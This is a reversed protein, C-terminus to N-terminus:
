KQNDLSKKRNYEKKIWYEFDMAKGNPMLTKGNTLSNVNVPFQFGNQTSYWLCGDRFYDFKVRQTPTLITRINLM